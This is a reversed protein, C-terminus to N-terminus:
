GAAQTTAIIDRNNTSPHVKEHFLGNMENVVKRIDNPSTKFSTICARMVMEGDIQCETMWATQNERLAALLDSTIL